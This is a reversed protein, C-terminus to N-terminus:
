LSGSPLRHGREQRWRPPMKGARPAPLLGCARRFTEMVVHVDQCEHLRMQRGRRCAHELDATPVASEGGSQGVEPVADARDIRPRGLTLDELGHRQLVEGIGSGKIRDDRAARQMVDAIQVRRHHLDLPQQPRAPEEDDVLM